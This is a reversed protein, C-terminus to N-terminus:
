FGLAEHSKRARALLRKNANQKQNHNGTTTADNNDDIGAWVLCGVGMLCISVGVIHVMRYRVGLLLFSLVLAVPIAVCDLLQFPCKTHQKRGIKM